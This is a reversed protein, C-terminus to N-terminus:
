GAVGAGRGRGRRRAAHHMSRPRWCRLFFAHLRAGQGSGPCRVARSAVLHSLAPGHFARGGALQEGIPVFPAAAPERRLAAVDLRAGDPVDEAVAEDDSEIRLRVMREPKGARAHARQEAALELAFGEHLEPVELAALDQTFHGPNHGVLRDRGDGARAGPGLLARLRIELQQQKREIMAALHM